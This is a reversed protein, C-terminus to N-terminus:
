TNGIEQFSENRSGINCDAQKRSVDAFPRAAFKAIVVKPVPERAAAEAVVMVLAAINRGGCQLSCLLLDLFVGVAGRGGACIAAADDHDAVRRVVDAAAARNARAADANRGAM